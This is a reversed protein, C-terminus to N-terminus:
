NDYVNQRCFRSLFGVPSIYNYVVLASTVVVVPMCSFLFGKGEGATASEESSSLYKRVRELSKSSKEFYERTVAHKSKLECLLNHLFAVKEENLDEIEATVSIKRRRWKSKNFHQDIVLLEQDLYLKEKISKDFERIMETIQEINEEVRACLLTIEQKCFCLLSVKQVNKSENHIKNQIDQVKDSTKGFTDRLLELHQLLGQASDKRLDIDEDDYSDIKHRQKLVVDLKSAATEIEGNVNRFNECLSLRGNLEGLLEEWTALLDNHDQPLCRPVVDASIRITSLTDINTKCTKILRQLHETEGFAAQNDETNLETLVNLWNRESMRLVLVPDLGQVRMDRPSNQLCDETNSSIIDISPLESRRRIYNSYDEGFCLVSKMSNDWTGLASGESLYQEQIDHEWTGSLCPEDYNTDIIDLDPTDADDPFCESRKKNRRDEDEEEPGAGDSSSVRLDHNSGTLVLLEAKTALAHIDEQSYNLKTKHLRALSNTKELLQQRMESSSPQSGM